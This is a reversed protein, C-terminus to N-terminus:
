FSQTRAFAPRNKILIWVGLATVTLSFALTVNMLVGADFQTLSERAAEKYAEIIRQRFSPVFALLAGHLFPLVFWWIALIRARERLELLGKGIYLSLATAFSYFIGASWGDLNMGFLYAPARSLLAIASGVGAAIIWCALFTVGIPTVSRAGLSSQFAAKTAQTNFQIIWWVAILLLVGFFATGGWRAAQANDPRANAPMPVFMLSALGFICTTVLFGAFVLLSTRAWPRLAFLGISTWIGVAGLAAAILALTILPPQNGPAQLSPEFLAWVVGGAFLLMMISGVVAVIASAIVGVPRTM